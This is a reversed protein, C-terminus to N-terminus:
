FRELARTCSMTMMGNIDLPLSISNVMYDGFIGSKEDKVAIRINCDLHYIPISTVSICENYSTSQYLLERVLNYASNFSGGGALLNFMEPKLQIYEEGNAICEQRHKHIDIDDTNLLILNPIEPEFVCNIKDDVIVVERRGINSISFESLAGASDIFDLFYDIDSPTAVVEPYFNGNEIDYLKPWENLLETYYYNSSTAYPESSVGSLYLESRWDNTTITQLDIAIEVYAQKKIKKGEDDEEEIFAWKYIKKTSNDMYFTGETGIAPFFDKTTFILPCKMKIIQDNPDEYKFCQYVNGSLPKENISLHYRIPIKQGNVSQRMGWIIFDNKINTYQPSNSYATTSLSNDFTYVTKGKSFDVLYNEKKMNNLEVKAHTTNLYNKVEQFIFNGDLDYFYEFNGLTNKVKDLIDCVSDGANGILEGPFTFDTYVYGIDRGRDYQKYKPPTEDGEPTPFNTTPFFQDDAEGYEEIIYLPSSGVWKMVQKVRTDVDSIIIKGLQEGGFHNVLEQIIQYILPKKIIYNGQEDITEYEHFTVAAPLRGGCEGNLLCMKDKLQLTITTGNTGNSLSSNIIVYVGLPFWLIDYDKYKLTNNLFGIELRIKKNMSIVTNDISTLNNSIADAIMTLNCTRRISSRGDINLSGSIIKGQIEQIPQEQFNLVTIKVYQEKIRMADIEKLFSSDNLYTYKIL